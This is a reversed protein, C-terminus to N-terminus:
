QVGLKTKVAALIDDGAPSVLLMGESSDIVYAYGKEKAVDEIAKRAKDYVPKLLENQKTGIKERAITEYDQIRKQAEQIEKVKVEKMTESMPPTAQSAKDFEQMKKNYEDILTKSERELGQAFTEIDTQAKKTEPMAQILAQANIHAIKSQASAKASFLGTFAVLAIIVYKKM